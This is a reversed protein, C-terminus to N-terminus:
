RRREIAALVVAAAGVPGIPFPATAVAAGILALLAAERAKRETIPAAVAQAVRRVVTPQAEEEIPNTAM